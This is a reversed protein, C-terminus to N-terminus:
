FKMGSMGRHNIQMEDNLNILFELLQQKSYLLAIQGFTSSVLQFTFYMQNHKKLIDNDNRQFEYCINHTCNIKM